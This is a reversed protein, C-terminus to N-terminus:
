SRRNNMVPKIPTRMGSIGLAQSELENYLQTINSIDMENMAAAMSDIFAGIALDFVGGFPMTSDLALAPQKYFYKCSLTYAIDPIPLVGIHTGTLYYKEPEAEGAHAYNVRETERCPLLFNDDIWVGSENLKSGRYMAIFDSMGNDAFAYTETGDALTITGSKTASIDNRNILVQQLYDVAKQCITLLQADTWTTKDPDMFRVMTADIVSQATAM